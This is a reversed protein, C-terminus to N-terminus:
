QFVKRLPRIVNWLKQLLREVAHGEQREPQQNVLPPPFHERAFDLRGVVVLCPPFQPQLILANRRRHRPAFRIEIRSRLIVHRRVSGVCAIEQRVNQFKLEVASQAALRSVLTRQMLAREVSRFLSTCLEVLHVCHTLALGPRIRQLRQGALPLGITASQKLIESRKLLPQIPLVLPLLHAPLRKERSRFRDLASAWTRGPSALRAVCAMNFEFSETSYLAQDIDSLM